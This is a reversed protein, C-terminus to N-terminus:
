GSVKLRYLMWAAVTKADRIVNRRILDEVETARLILPEVREDEDPDSPGPAEECDAFFVEITEDTYGPSSWLTGLRTWRAARCGTEEILERRAAAEASEGPNLLGACVEIAESEVAKRFQRVFVFAGDPLRALIGVAGAHRVIERMATRGNDLEVELRELELIRGAYIREVKRTHEM